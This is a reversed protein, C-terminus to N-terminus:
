SSVEKRPTNALQETGQKVCIEIKERIADRIFETDNIWFPYIKLIQKIEDILNKPIKRTEWQTPM